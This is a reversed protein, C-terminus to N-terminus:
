ARWVGRSDVLIRGCLRDPDIQKFPTHDVLMVIVDADNIARGTEVLECQELQNTPLAKINPEVILTRGPHTKSIHEVIMLAPSERLDGVDPKFALGFCAITVDQRSLLSNSSLIEDVAESVKRLMWRPKENNVARAAQILRSEERAQHVIFWPDVAICHGGVGPGPQLINVRPHRNALGILEWVDINLKDCIMSLENAYAINIDRFTNEALKSMEATRADTELIVGNVFTRYFDVAARTSEPDLGGVIRDNEILERMIQGPLVREPCHAVRVAHSSLGAGDQGPVALDAREEAIWGAVMETTGVPSTSELIVLDGPKLVVAVARSAAEVYRLDPENGEKFPTPVALIFVDAPTPELSAQLRGSDVAAQVAVDLDPERIHIKGSNITQVIDACIDVGQVQCGRSALLSATPLGIYGLGVVCVRCQAEPLANDSLYAHQPQIQGATGQRDAIKAVADPSDSEM